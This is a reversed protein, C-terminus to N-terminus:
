QDNTEEDDMENETTRNTTMGWIRTAYALRNKIEQVLRSDLATVIVGLKDAVASLITDADTSTVSVSYSTSNMTFSVTTTTATSSSANVISVNVNFGTTTPGKRDDEDENGYRAKLLKCLPGTSDGKQECGQVLRTEVKQAIGPARLLGPPTTSGFGEKLYEELLSQTDSDIEGTARISYREQFRKLANATLQGFYGTVKGEPYITPDSALLQQIKTVDVSTTGQQLGTKILTTVQNKMGAIQSQLAQIQSLLVQIQAMMAVTDGTTITSTVEARAPAHPAFLMGVFAFALVSNRLLKM